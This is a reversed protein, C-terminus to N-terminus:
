PRARSARVVPQRVTQADHDLGQRCSRLVIASGNAATRAGARQPEEADVHVLGVAGAISEELTVRQPKGVM